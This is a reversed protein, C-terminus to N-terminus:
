ILEKEDYVRISYELKLVIVSGLRSDEKKKWFSSSFLSLLFFVSLIESAFFFQTTLLAKSCWVWIAVFSFSVFYFLVTKRSEDSLYILIRKHRNEICRKCHQSSFLLFFFFFARSSLFSSAYPVSCNTNWLLLLHISTNSSDIGTFLIFNLTFRVFAALSFFRRSMNRKNRKYKNVRARNNLMSKNDYRALLMCVCMKTRENQQFRKETDCKCDM